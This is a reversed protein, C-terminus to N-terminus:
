GKLGTTAIGEVLRRQFFFFILLLPIISLCSMAFLAGWTSTSEGTSSSLMRLALPVTLTRDSTLYLLQSFFDNWTWVFTFIAVTILAPGCLPLIVFLFTRFPGCGDIAAAEDLERPIARIFQVMLFIFFSDVALFKPLVLPAFTNVLHAKNFIIYQPIITVHQPLMIGMLMLAFWVNRWRFKLRAFVYATLSCSLLNGVIALAAIIFSNIFYVSFPSALHTWGEPYNSATVHQPLVSLDTFIEDEPKFSSAFMWVLPYLMLVAGIVLLVTIVSSTRPARWISATRAEPM